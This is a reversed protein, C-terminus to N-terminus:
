AHVVTKPKEQRREAVQGARAPAKVGQARLPRQGIAPREQEDRRRKRQVRKEQVLAALRDPM